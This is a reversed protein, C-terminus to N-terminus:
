NTKRSGVVIGTGKIFIIDTYYEKDNYRVTEWSMGQNSSKIIINDGVAWYYSGELYVKKLNKNTNAYVSIWFEGRDQTRLILGGDGAIIGVPDIFDVSNLNNDYNLSVDDWSSGLNTTKLIKCSHGCVVAETGPSSSIFKVSNTYNTTNVPPRTQWTNGGDTTIGVSDAPETPIVMGRMEDSFDVAHLGSTPLHALSYTWNSGNDSTKYMGSLSGVIIGGNETNTGTIDYFNQDPIVPSYWNAGSNTTRMIAYGNNGIATVTSLDYNFCSVGQISTISVSIGTVRIDNVTWTEGANYTYLSIAQFPNDGPPNPENIGSLEGNCDSAIFSLCICVLTIFILNKKMNTKKLKNSSSRLRLRHCLYVKLYPLAFFILGIQPM